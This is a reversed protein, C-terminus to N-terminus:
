GRAALVDERVPLFTAQPRLPERAVQPRRPHAPSGRAALALPRSIEEEGRIREEKGRRREEEEERKKRLRDEVNSKERLRRGIKTSGGSLPKDINNDARFWDVGILKLLPDGGVIPLRPTAKDRRPFLPPAENERQFVLCHKTAENGCLSTCPAPIRDSQYTGGIGSPVSRFLSGQKSPINIM